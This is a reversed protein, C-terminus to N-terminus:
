CEEEVQQHRHFGKPKAAELREAEQIRALQSLVREQPRTLVCM